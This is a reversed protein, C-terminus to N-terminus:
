PEGRPSPEAPSRNQTRHLAPFVLRQGPRILDPDPGILERNRRHVDRVLEAIVAAPTSSGLRVEALRWLTDGPRVRVRTSGGHAVGLQRAPVPLRQQTAVAARRGDTHRSTTPTTTAACPTGVLAVGFAALLVPRLSPPCNVWTTARLRGGTVTELAAAACILVAWGACGLLVWSAATTLLQDFGETQHQNPM